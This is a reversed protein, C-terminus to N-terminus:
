QRRSSREEMGVLVRGLLLVVLLWEEEGGGGAGKECVVALVFLYM